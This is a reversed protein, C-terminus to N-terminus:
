GLRTPSPQCEAAWWNREIDTMVPWAVTAARALIEPDDAAPYRPGIGEELLVMHMRVILHADRAIM